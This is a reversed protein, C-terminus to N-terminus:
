AREMRTAGGSCRDVCIGCGFCDGVYPPGGELRRAGFPCSRVCNGCSVCMSRDVEARWEGRVLSFVDQGLCRNLLYPVCGDTCCNCIVYENMAGGILCHLFIMHFMGLGACESIIRKAEEKDIVRYEGPFAELWVDTGTRIVIDTEIPHSCAKHGTRCRCPGVAIRGPLDDVMALLEGTPIPRGTDGYHGFPYAIPYAILWRTLFFRTLFKLKGVSALYCLHLLPVEIYRAFIKMLLLRFRSHEGSISEVVHGLLVMTVLLAM